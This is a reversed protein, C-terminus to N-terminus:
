PADGRDAPQAAAIDREADSIIEGILTKREEATKPDQGRLKAETKQVSSAGSRIAAIRRAADFWFPAGLGILFGSVLIHVIWGAAEACDSWLREAVTELTQSTKGDVGECLMDNANAPGSCFPYYAWGIPIGIAVLEQIAAQSEKVARNGADIGVKAEWEAKAAEMAQKRDEVDAAGTQVADNYAALAKDVADRANEREQVSKSLEEDRARWEETKDIVLQTLKPDDKYAEFIRVADINAAFALIVAIALSYAHSRACFKSSIGAGIETLKRALRDFEDAAKQSADAIERRIAPVEALRRLIHEISVEEYLGACAQKGDLQRIARDCVGNEESPGETPPTSGQLMQRIVKPFAFILWHLPYARKRIPLDTGSLIQEATPLTGATSAPNNLIRTILDWRERASLRFPGESIRENFLKMIQILGGRRTGLYRNIAEMIMTIVTGLAAMTLAFALAADLLHM